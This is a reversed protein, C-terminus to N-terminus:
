GLAQPEGFILDDIAVGDPPPNEFPSDVPKTGAIIHVRAIEQDGTTVIGAFTFGKSRAGSPSVFQTTILEGESDYYELATVLPQDVDVFVAGFGNTTAATSTGPIFFTVDYETNSVAAFIKDPSFAAFEILGWQQATIDGFLFSSTGAAGSVKFRSDSTSFVAGRPSSSNFFGGPFPDEAAAPVADWNIERRGSSFTGGVGNNDGLQNRFRRLTDSLSAADPGSALYRIFSGGGGDGCGQCALVTILLLMSGIFNLHGYRQAASNFEM